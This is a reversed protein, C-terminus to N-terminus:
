LGYHLYRGKFMKEFELFIREKPLDDLVMSRCLRCSEKEVKFGFRSAFQMARLVRLGDEVFSGRDVVRLRKDELDDLALM